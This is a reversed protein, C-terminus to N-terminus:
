LWVKLKFSGLEIGLVQQEPQVVQCGAGAAEVACQQVVDRAAAQVGHPVLGDGAGGPVVRDASTFASPWPPRPRSTATVSAVQLVSQSTAAGPQSCPRGAAAPQLAAPAPLLQIPAQSSSGCLSPGMEAEAPHPNIGAAVADLWAGESCWVKGTHCESTIRAARNM